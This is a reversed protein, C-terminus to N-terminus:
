DFSGLLSELEDILSLPLRKKKPDGCREKLEVLFARAQVQWADPKAQRHGSPPPPDNHAPESAPVPTADGDIVPPDEPPQFDEETSRLYKIRLDRRGLERADDLAESLNVKGAQLRPLVLEVKSVDLSHMEVEPVQRRDLENRVRVMRYYTARSMSIEPDALWEALTDYGLATWGNEADFEALARAAEWISRRGAALAERIRQDLAFMAKGRDEAEKPSLERPPTMM